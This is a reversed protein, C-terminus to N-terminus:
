DEPFFQALPHATAASGLRGLGLGDELTALLNYHDIRATAEFGGSRALPSLVFFPIPNDGGILSDDEDWVILLLGRDQYADSGTIMPVQASLWADGNALNESTSPSPDHMDHILNPTIYALAPPAAMDGTLESYDLIVEACRDANGSVDDYYLFPVHRTAYNGSTELNCPTGLDEAYNRWTKGAADLQNGIHQVETQACGCDIFASSISNCTLANCDNGVPDCDCAVGMDSGSTMALYNPLSPKAVGHYNSSYAASTFLGTMFPANDADRLSSYSTNEMMILFVHSFLPVGTDDDRCVAHGNASGCSYGAPCAGCDGDGDGGGSDPDGPNGSGDPGPSGDVDDDGLQGSSGGCGAAIVYIGLIITARM